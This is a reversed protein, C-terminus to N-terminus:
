KEQAAPTCCFPRRSDPGRRVGLVRSSEFSLDVCLPPQSGLFGPTITALPDVRGSALHREGLPRLCPEVAEVELGGGTGVVDRIEVGTHERGETACLESSDELPPSITASGAYPSLGRQPM